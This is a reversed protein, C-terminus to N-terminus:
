QITWQYISASLKCFWAVLLSRELTGSPSGELQRQSSGESSGLL